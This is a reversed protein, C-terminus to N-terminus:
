RLGAIPGPYGPRRGPGCRAEQLGCRWLRGRATGAAKARPRSFATIAFTVTGDDRQGIIFAEGGSGPHGSGKLARRSWLGDSNRSM